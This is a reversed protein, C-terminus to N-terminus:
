EPDKTLDWAIYRGFAMAKAIAGDQEESRKVCARALSLALDIEPGATDGAAKLEELAACVQQGPPVGATFANRSNYVLATALRDVVPPGGLLDGSAGLPGLARQYVPDGEGARNLADLVGQCANWAELTKAYAAEVQKLRDSSLSRRPIVVGVAERWAARLAMDALDPEPVLGEVARAIQVLKEVAAGLEARGGILQLYEARGKRSEDMMREAVQSMSRGSVAAETEIFKRLDDSVNITLVRGKGGTGKKPNKGRPRGPRKVPLPSRM